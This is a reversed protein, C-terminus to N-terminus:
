LLDGRREKVDALPVLEGQAECLAEQDDGFIMDLSVNRTGGSRQENKLHQLAVWGASSPTVREQYVAELLGKVSGAGGVDIKMRAAVSREFQRTEKISTGTWKPGVGEALKNMFVLKEGFRGGTTKRDDGLMSGVTRGALPQRARKRGHAGKSSQYKKLGNARCSHPRLPGKIGRAGM